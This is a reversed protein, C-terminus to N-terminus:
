KIGKTKSTATTTTATYNIGTAKAKITTTNSPTSATDFPHLYKRKTIEVGGEVLGTLKLKECWVTGLINTNCGESLRYVSPMKQSLEGGGGGFFLFNRLFKVKVGKPIATITSMTITNANSTATITIAATSTAAAM